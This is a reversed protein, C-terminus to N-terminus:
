TAKQIRKSPKVIGIPKKCTTPACPSKRKFLGSAVSVKRDAMMQASQPGAGGGLSVNPNEIAELAMTETDIILFSPCRGFRAEVRSDLTPGSATVAIMM